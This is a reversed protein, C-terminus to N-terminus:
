TVDEYNGYCDDTEDIGEIEVTEIEPDDEAYNGIDSYSMNEVWERADGENKAKVPITVETKSYVTVNVEYYRVKMDELVAEVCEELKGVFFDGNTAETFDTVNIFTELINNNFKDWDKSTFEACTDSDQAIRTAFGLIIEAVADRVILSVEDKTLTIPVKYGTSEDNQEADIVWNKLEGLTRRIEKM